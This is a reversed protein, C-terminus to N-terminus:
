MHKSIWHDMITGVGDRLVCICTCDNQDDDIGKSFDVSYFAAKRMNAGCNFYCHVLFIFRCQIPSLIEGKIVYHSIDRCLSCGQQHLQHVPGINHQPTDGMISLLYVSDFYTRDLIIVPKSVTIAKGDNNLWLLFINDRDKLMDNDEYKSLYQSTSSIASRAVVFNDQHQDVLVVNSECSTEQELDDFNYDVQLLEPDMEILSNEDLSDEM